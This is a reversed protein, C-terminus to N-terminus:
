MEQQLSSSRHKIDAILDHVLDIGLAKVIRITVTPAIQGADRLLEIVELLKTDIVEPYGWKKDRRLLVVAVVHGIVSADIRSKSGHLLEFLKRALRMRAADAKHEVHYKVMNRALMLPKLAGDRAVLAVLVVKNKFLPYRAFRGAVPIRLKATGGPGPFRMNAFPVQM